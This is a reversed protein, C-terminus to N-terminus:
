TRQREDEGLLVNVNCVACYKETAFADRDELAEVRQEKRYKGISCTTIAEIMRRVNRRNM